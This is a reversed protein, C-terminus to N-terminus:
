EGERTWLRIDEDGFTDIVGNEYEVAHRGSRKLGVYRRLHWVEEGYHRVEVMNGNEFRNEM